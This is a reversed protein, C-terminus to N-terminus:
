AVCFLGCGSRWWLSNMLVSESMWWCLLSILWLRVCDWLFEFILIWCLSFFLFFKSILHFIQYRNLINLGGIRRRYRTRMCYYFSNLKAIHVKSDCIESGHLKASVRHICRRSFTSRPRSSAWSRHMPEAYDSRKNPMITNQDCRPNKRILYKRIISWIVHSLSHLLSPEHALVEM